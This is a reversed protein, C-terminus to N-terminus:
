QAFYFRVLGLSLAFLYGYSFRDIRLLEQDRSARWRGVMSMLLGALIPTMGLNVLRLTEGKVWHVPFLWVSFTGIATGFLAYGIAALWANPAKQFPATLFRLGYEALLELVVQLVFEGFIEFLFELM